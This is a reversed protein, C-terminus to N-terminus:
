PEPSQRWIVKGPAVIIEYNESVDENYADFIKGSLSTELTGYAEYYDVGVSQWMVSDTSALGDIKILNKGDTDNLYQQVDTGEDLYLNEVTVLINRKEVKLSFDEYTIDYNDTVDKGSILDAIVVNFSVEHEGAKIHEGSTVFASRAFLDAIGEGFSIQSGVLDFPKGDYIKSLSGQYSVTLKAKSVEISNAGSIDVAYNASGIYKLSYGFKGAGSIFPSSIEFDQKTLEDPLEVLATGGLNQPEFLDDVTITKPNRTIDLVYEMQIPNLEVSLKKPEITVTGMSVNLVYNILVENPVDKKWGASYTYVGANKIDTIHTEIFENIAPDSSNEIGDLGDYQYNVNYEASSNKLIIRVNRQVITVSAETVTLDYSETLTENANPSWKVSYRYTGVNAFNQATGIEAETYIGDPLSLQLDDITGDYSAVVTQLEPFGNKYMITCPKLVVSKEGKRMTYTGFETSVTYNEVANEGERTVAYTFTNDFQGVDTFESYNLVVKDTLALGEASLPNFDTLKQAEGNYKGEGDKGVITLSRKLVTLKASAAAGTIAYNESADQGNHMVAFGSIVFTLEGVDTLSAEGDTKGKESFKVELKHGEVLSGSSLEYKQAVLPTGDYIKEDSLPVLTIERKTVTVSGPTYSIRYNKSVDAGAVDAVVPPNEDGPTTGVNIRGTKKEPLVLKHGACLEGSTVNYEDAYQMKGDYEREVHEQVVTIQRQYVTLVGLEVKVAYKKTVDTGEEDTIKVDLGAKSTGFETQSGTFTVEANHGSLLEDGNKFEYSQATLPTGDYEKSEDSVILTIEIPNTEILGTASLSVFTILAAALCLMLCGVILISTKFKSM